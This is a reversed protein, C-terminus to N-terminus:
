NDKQGGMGLWGGLFFGAIGCVANCLITGVILGVMGGVFAGDDPDLRAFGVDDIYDIMYENALVVAEQEHEVLASFEAMDVPDNVDLLDGATIQLIQQKASESIGSDDLAQEMTSGMAIQQNAALVEEVLEVTIEGEQYGIAVLYTDIQDQTLGSYRTVNDSKAVENLTRHVNLTKDRIGKYKEAISKYTSIDDKALENEVVQACGIFFPLIFVVLLTSAIKRKHNKM